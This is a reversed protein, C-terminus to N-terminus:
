AAFNKCALDYKPKWKTYLDEMERYVDPRLVPQSNRIVPLFFKATNFFRVFMGLYYDELMPEAAQGYKIAIAMDEYFNGLTLVAEKFSIGQSEWALVKNIDKDSFDTKDNFSDHFSTMLNGFARSCIKFHDNRRNETIFDVTRDRTESYLKIASNFLFGSILVLATVIVAYDKLHDLKFYIIACLLILSVASAVLLAVPSAFRLLLRDM